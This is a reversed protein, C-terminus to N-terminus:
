PFIYRMWNRVKQGPVYAVPQGWLGQGVQVIYNEQGHSWLARAPATAQPLASTPPAVAPAAISPPVITATSPIEAPLTIPNNAPNVGPVPQTMPGTVSTAYGTPQVQGCPYGGAAAYSSAPTILRCNDMTAFTVTNLQPQQMPAQDSPSPVIGGISQSPTLPPSPLNRPAVGGPPAIPPTQPNGPVGVTPFPADSPLMTGSGLTPESPLATDPPTTPLPMGVGDLPPADFGSQMWVTQRISNASGTSQGESAWFAHVSQSASSQMQDVASPAGLPRLRTMATDSQSIAQPVYTFTPIAFFLGILCAARMM